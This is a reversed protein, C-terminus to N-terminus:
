GISSSSSIRVSVPSSPSSISATTSIGSGASSNWTFIGTPVARANTSRVLCTTAAPRGGPSAHAVPRDRDPRADPFRRVRGEEGVEVPLGDDVLGDLALPRQPVERVAGEGVTLDRRVQHGLREAPTDDRRRPHAVSRESAAHELPPLVDVRLLVRDVQHRGLVGVGLARRPQGHELRDVLLVPRHGQHVLVRRREPPHGHEVDDHVVRVALAPVHEGHGVAVPEADVVPQGEVDLVLQARHEPPPDALREVGVLELGQVTHGLRQM